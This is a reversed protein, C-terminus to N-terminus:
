MKQCSHYSPWRCWCICLLSICCWLSRSLINWGPGTVHSSWLNVLNMQIYQWACGIWEGLSANAVTRASPLHPYYQNM